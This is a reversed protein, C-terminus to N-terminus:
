FGGTMSTQYKSLAPCSSAAEPDILIYYTPIKKTLWKDLERSKKENLAFDAIKSYDDQLNMRHAESRSKLYVLRVGKKGQENVFTVPQSIDGVKMDKITTVM